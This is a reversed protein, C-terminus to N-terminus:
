YFMVKKNLATKEQLGKFVKKWRSRLTEVPIVRNVHMIVQPSNVVLSEMDSKM